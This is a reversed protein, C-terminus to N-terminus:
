TSLGVHGCMESGTTARYGRLIDPLLSGGIWSLGTRDWLSDRLGPCTPDIPCCLGAACHELRTRGDPPGPPPGRWLLYLHGRAKGEGFAERFGGPARPSPTSVEVPGQAEGIKEAFGVKRLVKTVRVRLTDNEKVGPVFIVFNNKKAIGDGKEGVAEIRVDLEDGVKVPATLGRDHFGSGGSFRNNGYM